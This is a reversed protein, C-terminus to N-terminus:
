SEFIIKSVLHSQLVNNFLSHVPSCGRGLAFLISRTCVTLYLSSICDVLTYSEKLIKNHFSDDIHALSTVSCNHRSPQLASVRGPIVSVTSKAGTISRTSPDM